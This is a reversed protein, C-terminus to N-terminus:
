TRKLYFRIIAYLVLLGLVFGGAVDTFWHAGLYVRSLPVTLILFTSIIMIFVRFTKRIGKLRLMLFILFGFFTVYHSTHGSPFSQHQAEIVTDVLDASPRPRDVLIKIGANILSVALTSATFYAERRYKFLYFLLATGFISSLAVPTKGFWSIAKMVFDLASTNQEQVEESFEIDLLSTPLFYVLATIILFLVLLTILLHHAKEKDELFDFHKLINM